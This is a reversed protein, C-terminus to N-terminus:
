QSGLHSPRILVRESHIAIRSHTTSRVLCIGTSRVLCIGAPGRVESCRQCYAPGAYGYLRWWKGVKHRKREPRKNKRRRKRTKANGEQKVLEEAIGGGASTADASGAGTDPGGAGCYMCKFCAAAGSPKPKNPLCTRPPGLGPPLTRDPLSAVEHSLLEGPECITRSSRYTLRGDYGDSGVTTSGSESDSSGSGSYEFQPRHRFGAPADPPGAVAYAMIFEDVAVPVAALGGSAQELAYFSGAVPPAQAVPKDPADWPSQQLGFVSDWADAALTPDDLDADRCPSSSGSSSSTGYVDTGYGSADDSLEDSLVASDWSGGDSSSGGGDMFFEDSLDDDSM